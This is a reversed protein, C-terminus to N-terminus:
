HCSVCRAIARIEGFWSTNSGIFRPNIVIRRGDDARSRFHRMLGLANVAAGVIRRPAISRLKNEGDNLIRPNWFEPVWLSEVYVDRWLREEGVELFLASVAVVKVEQIQM